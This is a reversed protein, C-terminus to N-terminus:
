KHGGPKVHHKLMHAMPTHVTLGKHSHMGGSHEKTLHKPHEKRPAEHKM